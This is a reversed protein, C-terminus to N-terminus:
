GDTLLKRAEQFIADLMPETLRGTFTNQQSPHYCGLLVYPEVHTKAGHGFKSRPAAVHGLQRLARLMGDWAYGGLCVIVQVHKLLRLDEVLYGMCNDREKPM